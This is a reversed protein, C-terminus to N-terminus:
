NYLAKPTVITRHVMQDIGLEKILMGILMKMLELYKYLMCICINFVCVCVCVCLYVCVCVPMYIHM